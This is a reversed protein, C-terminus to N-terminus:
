FCYWFSLIFRTVNSGGRSAITKKWKRFGDDWEIIGDENKEKEKNGM